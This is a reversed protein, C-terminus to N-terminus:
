IKVQGGWSEVEGPRVTPRAGRAQDVKPPDSRRTADRSPDPHRSTKTGWLHGEQLLVHTVHHDRPDVVLGQVSGIAGDSAEVEDGRRVDVEGPPVIDSVVPQPTRGAGLATGGGGLGGVSLGAADLGFYPLALAQGSEYGWPEADYPLFHVEQADDLREFEDTSCRLRVQEGVSEVLAVRVLKGLSHHRRPAVVLHTLARAVPDIIVRALKGCSGDRCSVPAGIRFPIPQEARPSQGARETQDGRGM